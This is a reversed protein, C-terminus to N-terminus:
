YLQHHAADRFSSWYYGSNLSIGLDEAAQQIVPVIVDFHPWHWSPGGNVYPVVDVARCMQLVGSKDVYCDHDTLLHKSNMTQSAGNEVNIRQQELTRPGEVISMDLPSRTIALGVVMVLDPHVGNLRDRSRQSFKFRSM